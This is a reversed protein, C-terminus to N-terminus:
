SDSGAKREAEKDYLSEVLPKGCFTCFKMRHSSPPGETDFYFAEGCETEWVGDSDEIWACQESM